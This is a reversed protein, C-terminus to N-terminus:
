LQLLSLISDALIYPFRQGVELLGALAAFCGGDVRRLRPLRQLAPLSLVGRTMRGVRLDALDLGRQGLRPGVLDIRGVVIERGHDLQVSAQAVIDRRRGRGRSRSQSARREGSETFSPGRGWRLASLKGGLAGSAICAASWCFSALM